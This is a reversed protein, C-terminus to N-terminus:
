DFVQFAKIWGSGSARYSDALCLGQERKGPETQKIYEKFPDKNM